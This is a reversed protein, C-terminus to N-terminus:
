AIGGRRIRQYGHTMDQWYQGGTNALRTTVATAPDVRYSNGHSDLAYLNGDSLFNIANCGHSVFDGIFATNGTTLDISYLGQDQDNTSKDSLILVNTRNLVAMARIGDAAIDAAAVNSTHATALNISFITPVANLTSGFTSGLLTSGDFDLGDIAGRGTNGILTAEGTTSSVAYLVGGATTGYLQGTTPDRAVGFLIANEIGTTGILTSAGSTVDVSWVGSDSGNPTEAVGYALPGEQPFPIVPSVVGGVGVTIRTVLTGKTAKALAM